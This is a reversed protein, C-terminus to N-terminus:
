LAGAWGDAVPRIPNNGADTMFPLSLALVSAPIRLGTSGTDVLVHDISQCTSTGPVCIIVTTYLTNNLGVFQGNVIPGYDMLVPQVNNVVPPPTTTMGTSSSASSSSGGSCAALTVLLVALIAAAAADRWRILRVGGCARM